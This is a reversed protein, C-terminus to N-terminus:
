VNSASRHIPVRVVFTTGKGEKSTVRISGDHLLVTSHTISLGLGTGGTGRDRTKDVRYFRTFIKSLEDEAIGMGTDNVTIFVNQHDADVTVKVSGGNQTYKIGNEILNSLALSLKMTDAEITVNKTDERILQIDKKDALPRVTKVIRKILANVDTSEINLGVVTQDLKVLTLLDNVIHNMRDIESNIDQLFEKYMEQPVNEQFLISESLVKISSLPTKLEHSVNSVFEERTDEVRQLKENMDNFAKCLHAIENNGSVKIKQDHHGDAVREVVKLLKKLPILIIQSVLFVVLVIVLATAINLSRLSGQIIALLDNIDSVSSVILVTGIVRSENNFIPVATYRTVGDAQVRSTGREQLAGIVEPAVFTNGVETGSTDQIVIGSRDIIIIRFSEEISREHMSIKFEEMRSSDFLFGERSIQDGIINAKRTLETARSSMFYNEISESVTSAFFFLPLFGVLLYAL